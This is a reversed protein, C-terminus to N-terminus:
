KSQDAATLGHARMGAEADLWQTQKVLRGGDFEDISLLRNEIFAGSGAGYGVQHVVSAIAEGEVDHLRVLKFRFDGFAELWSECFEVYGQVGAYSSDAGPVVPGQAWVLEYRPDDHLLTNLEWDHRNWAAYARRYVYELLTTRLRSPPRRLLAAILRSMLGPARIMVREVLSRGRRAEATTRATAAPHLGKTV